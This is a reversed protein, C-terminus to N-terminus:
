RKPQDGPKTTDAPKAEDKKAAEAPKSADGPKAEAKAPEKAPKTEAKAPENAPKTEAKAPENAPKAETKAPENAPKAETKAADEAKAPETAPKTAAKSPDEAPAPSTAASAPDVPAPPPPNYFRAQGYVTVEVIDYYTDIARGMAKLMKEKEERKKKRDDVVNRVDKGKPASGSGGGGVMMGMNGRGGSGMMGGAARRMAEDGGARGMGAMGPMGGVGPTGELKVPKTIPNIPKLLEFEMVQIAMPSNELGIFFEQLRNQDVLATLRIPLLSYAQSPSEIYYLDQGATAGAGFASSGGSGGSVGPTGPTTTTAAASVQGPALIEPAIKVTQGKIMSKQDQATPTGVEMLDLRKVVAEDWTKAPGNIKAIADLLTGQIWLKEQAAWVKGLDPPQAVDFVAPQLLIAKDPVEVIGTGAIPDWPNVKKYTDDVAKEYEGVYDTIARQVVSLDVGEPWKRGWARFKEAVLPPWSLLPAQRAYLKEHAKNVDKTLVEKKDDILPKYQANPIGPQTYPKVGSDAGKIKTVEKKTDEKIPASGILYGIMPLLASFGLAIWFRNRVSWKVALKLQDAVQQNDM